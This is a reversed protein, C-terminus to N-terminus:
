GPTPDVQLVIVNKKMSLRREILALKKYLKVKVM